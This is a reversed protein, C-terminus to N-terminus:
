GSVHVFGLFRGDFVPQSQTLGHGKIRQAATNQSRKGATRGGTVPQLVESRPTIPEGCSVPLRNTRILVFRQQHDNFVGLNQQPLPTGNSAPTLASADEHHGDTIGSPRKERGFHHFLVGALSSVLCL